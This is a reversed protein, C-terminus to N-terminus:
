KKTYEKMFNLFADRLTKDEIALKAKFKNRLDKPVDFSVRVLANKEAQTRQSKRPTM